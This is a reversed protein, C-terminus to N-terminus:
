DRLGAQRLQFERTAIEVILHTAIEHAYKITAEVAMPVNAGVPIATGLLRRYIESGRHIM